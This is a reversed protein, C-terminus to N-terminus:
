PQKESLLLKTVLGLSYECTVRLYCFVQLVLCRVAHVVVVPWMCMIHRNHLLYRERGSEGDVRQWEM